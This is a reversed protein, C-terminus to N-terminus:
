KKTKMGRKFAEDFIAKRTDLYISFLSSPNISTHDPVPYGVSRVERLRKRVALEQKSDWNHPSEIFPRIAIFARLIVSDSLAGPSIPQGALSRDQSPPSLFRGESYLEIDEVGREQYNLIRCLRYYDFANRDRMAEQRQAELNALNSKVM